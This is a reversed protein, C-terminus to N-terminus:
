RLLEMIRDVIEEVSGEAPILHVRKPDETALTVYADAVERQFTEGEGGIRDVVNQRALAADPDIWLVAVLDPLVGELGTENVQRVAELGLGRAVGQYALSSYYSRDSVVTEGRSLAPGIVEAALQARQAAFLLAETWPAMGPGHLLLRRVEEGVASGGPERVEVVSEGDERLREALRRAVTSKGAGDVGEIVIYRSM